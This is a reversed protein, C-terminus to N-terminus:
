LFKKPKRVERGSRTRTTTENSIQVIKAQDRNVEEEQKTEERMTKNDQPGEYFNTPVELPYLRQLPRLLVSHSTKVDAVHAHGDKGPHLELIRGLKWDQRKKNDDGVLVIDGVQFDHYKQLKGRQVLLALYESRFRGRLEEWLKKLNKFKGRMDDGVLVEAEPFSTEQTDRLFMSPTLPILDNNDETVYTLPREKMVAEVQCLSTELQAYNLRNQGLM